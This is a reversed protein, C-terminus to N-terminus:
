SPVDDSPRTFRAILDSKDVKGAVTRPLAAVVELQEPWAHPRLGQTRLHEAIAELVPADADPQLEFVACVREGTREDPLGIVVADAVGSFLRLLEEVEAASVNEGNRIVVDKLRGTVTVFGEPDVVGLDGTRLFGREDFAQSDSSSDVYGVMVQPARVRLEGSQGVEAENGDSLVVRLEVGPLPRGETTALKDDPDTPRGMTLVPAETLGWGSLIGVGGLHRKVEAHLTPPKPAGGGPCCRLLPFIPDDPQSRQVDLYGLHFATGSGAMTVGERRLVAVSRVPEFVEILIYAAGSILAAFLNVLGGIHAVPFALGSRDAPTMALHDVMGRAVAALGVDTHCAGKPRGTSGSTYFMWRVPARGDEPPPSFPALLDPDGEILQGEIIHVDPSGDHSKAISRAMTLFDVGRWSPTVFMKEVRAETVIHDIERERYIPVIPNQIASLRSLAAMFVFTDIGTPLIWSVVSGVGVGLECLGAATRRAAEKFEHFTMRRGYEDVFLVHDPSLAARAEV